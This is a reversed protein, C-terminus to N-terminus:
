PLGIANFALWALLGVLATSLATGLLSLVAISDWERSLDEFNLTLSGAFLLFALMGDLVTRHFDIGTILQAAETRLPRAFAGIALLVASTGLSMFMVGIVPPLRIYRANVFSFFAALTILLSATEFFGM